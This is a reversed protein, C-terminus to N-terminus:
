CWYHFKLAEALASLQSLKLKVNHLVYTPCKANHCLSHYSNPILIIEKFPIGIKIKFYNEWTNLETECEM